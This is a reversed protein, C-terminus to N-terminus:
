IDIKGKIGLPTRGGGPDTKLEAFYAKMDAFRGFM